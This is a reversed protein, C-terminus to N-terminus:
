RRAGTTPAIPVPSSSAVNNQQLRHLRELREATLDITEVDMGQAYEFQEPSIVTDFDREYFRLLMLPNAQLQLATQGNGSFKDSAEERRFEIIYPFRDGAGVVLLVSAPLHSPIPARTNVPAPSKEHESRKLYHALKEMKWFGITGEVETQGLWLSVPPSFSFNERLGAILAPLGGQEVSLELQLPLGRAEGAPLEAFALQLNRRLRRLDVSTVRHGQPTRQDTWLRDGDSVQLLRVQRGEIQARLDFRVRIKQRGADFQQLYRGGGEMLWGDLSARQQVNASINPRNELQQVIHLLLQDGAGPLVGAAPFEALDVIGNTGTPQASLSSGASLLALLCFTLGRHTKKM